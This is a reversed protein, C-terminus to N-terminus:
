VKKPTKDKRKQSLKSFHEIEHKKSEDQSVAKSNINANALNKVLATLTLRSGMVHSM